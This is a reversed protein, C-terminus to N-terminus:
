CIVSGLARVAPAPMQNWTGAKLAQLEYKSRGPTRTRESIVAMHGQSRRHTYHLFSSSLAKWDPFYV